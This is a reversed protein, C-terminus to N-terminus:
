TERRLRRVGVLGALAGGLLLASAPLPVPSPPPAALNARGGYNFNPLSYASEGAAVNFTIRDEYRFQQSSYTNSGTASVGFSKGFRFIAEPRPYSINPALASVYLSLSLRGWTFAEHPSATDPVTAMESVDLVYEFTMAVADGACSAPRSSQYLYCESRYRFSRSYEEGWSGTIEVGDAQRDTGSLSGRRGEAGNTLYLADEPDGWWWAEVDQM